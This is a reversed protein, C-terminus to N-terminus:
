IQRLLPIELKSSIVSLCYFFKKESHRHMILLFVNILPVCYYNNVGETLM